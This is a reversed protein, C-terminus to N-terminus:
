CSLSFVLNEKSNPYGLVLRLGLLKPFTVHPECTCKSTKHAWIQPRTWVKVSQTQFEDYIRSNNQQKTKVKLTVKIRIHLPFPFSTLLSTNGKYCNTHVWHLLLFSCCFFISLYKYIKRVYKYGVCM